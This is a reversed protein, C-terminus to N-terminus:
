ANKEETKLYDEKIKELKMIRENYFEEYVKITTDVLGTM